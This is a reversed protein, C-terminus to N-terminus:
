FIREISEITHKGGFENICIKVIHYVPDETATKQSAIYWYNTGNVLQDGVFTIPEYNAGVFECMASDWATQAKQPMGGAAHQEVIRIGGFLQQAM